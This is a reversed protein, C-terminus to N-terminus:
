DDFGAAVGPAENDAADQNVSRGLVSVHKRADFEQVEGDVRDTEYGQADSVAFFLLALPSDCLLNLHLLSEFARPLLLALPSLLM